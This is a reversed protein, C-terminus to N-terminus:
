GRYDKYLRAFPAPHGGDYRLLEASVEKPHETFAYSDYERTTFDYPPLENEAPLNEEAHFFSDVNRVRKAILEPDGIRSYHFMWIGSPENRVKGNPICNQGDFGDYSYPAGKRTLRTIVPSWDRRITHLDGFFYPRVFDFGTIDPSANKVLELMRPADDEHFAEDQQVCLRWETNSSCADVAVQSQHGIELGRTMNEMNWPSEVLKLDLEDRLALALEHTGDDTNPDYALVIENCFPVLAELCERLPYKFRVSNRAAVCGSINSQPKSMFSGIM